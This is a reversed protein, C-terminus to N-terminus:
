VSPAIGAGLYKFVSLNSIFASFFAILLNSKGSNNLSATEVTM